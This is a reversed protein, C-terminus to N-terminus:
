WKMYKEIEDDSCTHMGKRVDKQRGNLREFIIGQWNNAMCEEILRAVASAGHEEAARQVQTALAQLGTPKYDQRKEHKYILWRTFAEQLVPAAGELPNPPIYQGKGQGKDKTRQGQSKKTEQLGSQNEQNEGEQKPKKPRGGSKGNERYAAAATEQAAISEDIDRKIAPWVFRESGSFEPEAGSERYEMMALVLRGVEAASYPEFYSAYSLWLKVYDKKAAM